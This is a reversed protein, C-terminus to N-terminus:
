RGDCAEEIVECSGVVVRTKRETRLRAIHASGPDNVAVVAVLRHLVLVEMATYTITAIIIKARGAYVVTNVAGAAPVPHDLAEDLVAANNVASGLTDCGFDLGLLGLLLLNWSSKGILFLRNCVFLLRSAGAVATDGNEGLLLKNSADRAVIIVKAQSAMNAVLMTVVGTMSERGRCGLSDERSQGIEEAIRAPVNTVVGDAIAAVLEDVTDAVLAQVAWVPVVAGVTELVGLEDV